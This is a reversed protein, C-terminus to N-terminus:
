FRQELVRFGRVNLKGRSQLFDVTLKEVKFKEKLLEKEAEYFNKQSNKRSKIKKKKSEM